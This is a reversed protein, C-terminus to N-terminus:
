EVFPNLNHDMYLKNLQGISNYVNWVMEIPIQTCERENAARFQNTEGIKTHLMGRCFSDMPTLNPSHPVYETNGKTWIEM